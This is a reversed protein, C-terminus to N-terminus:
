RIEHKLFQQVSIEDLFKSEKEKELQIYRQHKREKMKEYKKVDISKFMLFQEQDNMRSRARQTELQLKDIEKQLHSITQQTQQIASISTGSQIKENYFAELDEKKKLLHYLDTAVDEFQKMAESYKSEAESKEHEKVELVKQLGFQFSM